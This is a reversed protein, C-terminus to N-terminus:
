LHRYLLVTGCSSSSWASLEVNLQQCYCCNVCLQSDYAASAPLLDNVAVSKGLAHVLESFCCSNHSTLAPYPLSPLLPLLAASEKSLM